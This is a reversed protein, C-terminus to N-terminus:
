QAMEDSHSQAEEQSHSCTEGEPGGCICPDCSSGASCTKIVGEVLPHTLQPCGVFLRSEAHGLLFIMQEPLLQFNLLETPGADEGEESTYGFMPGLISASLWAKSKQMEIVANPRKKVAKM